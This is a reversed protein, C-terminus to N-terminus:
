TGAITGIVEDTDHLRGKEHEYDGRCRLSISDVLIVSREGRGAITLLM